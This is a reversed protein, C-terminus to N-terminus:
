HARRGARPWQRETPRRGVAARRRAQRRAAGPIRRSERRGRGRRAGAGRRGSGWVNRFSQRFRVACRCPVSRGVDRRGVGEGTGGPSRCGACSSFFFFMGEGGSRHVPYVVRSLSARCGLPCKGRITLPGATWQASDAVSLRKERSWRLPRHAAVVAFVSVAHCRDQRKKNCQARRKLAIGCQFHPNSQYDRSRSGAVSCVSFGRKKRRILAADAHFNSVIEM